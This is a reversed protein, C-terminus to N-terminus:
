DLHLDIDIRLAEQSEPATIQTAIGTFTADIGYRMQEIRTMLGATEKM